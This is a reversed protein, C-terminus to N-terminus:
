IFSLVVNLTKSSFIYITVHQLRTTNVLMEYYRNDADLLVKEEAVKMVVFYRLGCSLYISVYSKTAVTVLRSRNDSEEVLM